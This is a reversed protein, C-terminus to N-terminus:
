ALLYARWAWLLLGHPYFGPCSLKAIIRFVLFMKSIFNYLFDLLIRKTTCDQYRAGENHLMMKVHAPGPNSQTKPKALCPYDRKDEM